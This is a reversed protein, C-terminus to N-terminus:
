KPLAPIDSWSCPPCEECEECNEKEKLEISTTPQQREKESKQYKMTGWTISLFFTNLIILCILLAIASLLILNLPNKKM